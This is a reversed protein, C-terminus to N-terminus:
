PVQERAMNLAAWLQALELDKPHEQRLTKLHTEAVQLAGKVPPDSANSLLNAGQASAAEVWSLHALAVLRRALPDQPPAMRQLAQADGMAHRAHSKALDNSGQQHLLRALQAHVEAQVAQAARAADAGANLRLVQRAIPLVSQYTSIAAPVDELSKFGIGGQTQACQMYARAKELQFLINHPTVESELGALQELSRQLMERRMTLTGPLNQLSTQWRLAQQVWLRVDVWRQQSALAAQQEAQRVAQLGLCSSLAVAYLGATGVALGWRGQQLLKRGQHLWSWRAYVTQGELCRAIDQALHHASRYRRKPQKQLAKLIVADIDKNIESHTVKSPRPPQDECIANRLSLDGGKEAKPYPSTGTLLTYLMVGLSYVDSAPTIPDGRVQEPSACALTMMRLMTVTVTSAHEDHSLSKAIGFDVLKVEGQPTVLVNAPKLDRHVVSKCHAYHVVQSLVQVLQLRQFVGLKHRRCFVDIPEGEILEMVLYPLANDTVGSDLLRALNPHHLRGLTHREIEFRNRMADTILGERMLKIAVDPQRKADATGAHQARYVHGMGGQAILATLRYAGIQRGVWSLPVPVVPEDTELMQTQPLRMHTSAVVVERVWKRSLSSAGDAAAGLLPHGSHQTARLLVQLEALEALNHAQQTIFALQQETPLELADALIAKLRPWSKVVPADASSM